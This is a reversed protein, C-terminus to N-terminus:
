NQFGSSFGGTASSSPVASRTGSGGAEFSTSPKVPPKAPPQVAAPRAVSAAPRSSFPDVSTANAVNKARNSFGASARNASGSSFGRDPKKRGGFFPDSSSSPSRTAPQSVQQTAPQHTKRGGLQFGGASANANERVSAPQTSDVSGGGFSAPVPRVDQRSAARVQQPATANPRFEPTQPSAFSPTAASANSSESFDPTPRPQRSQNARSRGFGNAASAARFTPNQGVQPSGVPSQRTPRVSSVPQSPTSSIQPRQSGGGAYQAAATPTVKAPVVLMAVVQEVPAQGYPLALAYDTYAKNYQITSSVFDAEASRWARGAGLLQEITARNSKYYGEVQEATREALLVTDARSLVLDHLDKLTQDINELRAPVLGREKFAQFNTKVMTVTPLDVPVISARTGLISQLNSQSEGLEIRTSTVENEASSKAVGFTSQDTSKSVQLGNIWDRHQKASVSQAWASFTEWYQDILQSRSARLQGQNLVDALRLPVLNGSDGQSGKFGFRAILVKASSSTKKRSRRDGQRQPANQTTQNGQNQYRSAQGNNQRRQLSQLAQRPQNQFSQVPAAYSAPAVSRDIIVNNNSRVQQPARTRRETPLPSTNETTRRETSQRATFARPKSETFARPKSETFASPKPKTFAHPKPKSFAPNQRDSFIGPPLRENSARRLSNSHQSSAQDRQSDVAAPQSSSSIFGGGVANSAAARTDFASTGSADAMPQHASYPKPTAGSQQPEVSDLQAGEHVLISHGDDDPAAVNGVTFQGFCNSTLPTILVLTTLGFLASQLSKAHAFRVLTYSRLWVKM